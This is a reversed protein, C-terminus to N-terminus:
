YFLSAQLYSSGEQDPATNPSGVEAVCEPIWCVRAQEQHPAGQRWDTGLGRVQPQFAKFDSSANGRQLAISMERTARRVLNARPVGVATLPVIRLAGCSRLWMAAGGAVPRSSWDM